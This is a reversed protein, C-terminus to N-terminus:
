MLCASVEVLECAVADEGSLLLVLSTHLAHSATCAHFEGDSLPVFAMPLECIPFSFGTPREKRSEQSTQPIEPIMWFVQGIGRPIISTNFPYTLFM